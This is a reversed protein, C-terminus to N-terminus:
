IRKESAFALIASSDEAWSYQSMYEGHYANIGSALGKDWNRLDSEIEDYRVALGGWQRVLIDELNYEKLTDILDKRLQKLYNTHDNDDEWLVAAIEGNSCFAGRRDFIFALLEKTKQHRFPIPEGDVFAEFFGFCQVRLKGGKEAQVPYRLEGLVREVKEKTIPKLLYGSAFLQLAELAYDDYGTAFIINIRPNLEKLQKALEVGNMDLGRIDLFAVDCTNYKAYALVGESSHFTLTDADPAAEQISKKLRRLSLEEDDLAIIKM